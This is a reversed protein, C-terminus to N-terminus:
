LAVYFLFYRVFCDLKGGLGDPIYVKLEINIFLMPLTMPFNGETRLAIHRYGAQFYTLDNPYPLVIEPNLNMLKLVRSNKNEIPLKGIFFEVLLSFQSLLAQHIEARSKLTTALSMDTIM